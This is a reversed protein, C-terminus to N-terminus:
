KVLSLLSDRKKMANQQKEMCTGLLSRERCCNFLECAKYYMAAATNWAFLDNSARGAEACHDGMLECLHADTKVLGAAEAEYSKALLLAKAGMNDKARKYLQYLSVITSVDLSTNKLNGLLVLEQSALENGTLRPMGNWNCSVSGAFMAKPEPTEDMSSKPPASPTPTGRGYSSPSAPSRMPSSPATSPSKSFGLDSMLPRDFMSPPASPSGRTAPISYSATSGGYSTTSGGYSATPSGYSTSSSMPTASASPRYGSSSPTQSAAQSSPALKQAALYKQRYPSHEKKGDQWWARLFCAAAESYNKEALWHFGECGKIRAAAKENTPGLLKSYIDSLVKLAASSNGEYMYLEYLGVAPDADRPHESLYKILCDKANAFNSIATSSITVGFRQAKAFYAAELAQYYLQEKSKSKSCKACAAYCEITKKINESTAELGSWYRGLYFYGIVAMDNKQAREAAQAFETLERLSQSEQTTGCNQSFQPVVVNKRAEWEKSSLRIVPTTTSTSTSPSALRPPTDTSRTVPSSLTSSPPPTHSSPLSQQSLPKVPTPQGPSYGGPPRPGVPGGGVRGRKSAGEFPSPTRSTSTSGGYQGPMPTPSTSPTTHSSPSGGGWAAIRSQMSPSSSGTGPSSSSPLTKLHSVTPTSTSPSVDPGGYGIPGGYGSDYGPVGYGGYGGPAGYGSIPSGYGPAGYSTSFPYGYGDLGTSSAPPYPSPPKPISSTTSPPSQTSVSRGNSTSGTSTPGTESKSTSLKKSLKSLGDGTKRAVDKSKGDLWSGFKKAQDKASSTGSTGSFM